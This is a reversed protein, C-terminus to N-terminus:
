KRGKAQEKDQPLARINRQYSDFLAIPFAAFHVMWFDEEVLELGIPENALTESIFIKEGKWKFTGCRGVTRVQMGTDYAPQPLRAPYVIGSPTYCSAPTKMELAQHPRQDNYIYRFHDFAKQQARAHAAPPNATEAKLTRHMREHRGNQEPHGAQIREPVINLKMLYLALPSLGAIARSAFPPGNDTRIASPLGYERFAAEFIARVRATDTKEVAQCRILYRSAADSITLPDIRQQDLTRFWGKFDACWVQNPKKAHGLPQTFPPTKRRQRRPATLGERKLLEGITSAAPWAKKPQETRLRILLKRAGWTAHQRRLELVQQEIEMATQNPHHHPARSRDELGADAELESRKCWKYGSQRSIDHFRCLEAM